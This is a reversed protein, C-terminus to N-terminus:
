TGSQELAYVLNSANSRSGMRLRDGIWAWTVTTETLRAETWKAERLAEEVTRTAEEEGSERRETGYHPAEATELVGALQELSARALNFRRTFVGLLWKMGEVLNPQPTEVVLHFHNPM